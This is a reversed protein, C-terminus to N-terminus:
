SGVVFPVGERASVMVRNNPDDALADSLISASCVGGTQPVCPLDNPCNPVPLRVVLLRATRPDASPMRTDQSDCVARQPAPEPGGVLVRSIAVRNAATGPAAVLQVSVSDGNFFASTYQWQQVTSANLVQFEGDALSTLLLYSRGELAVDDFVVRIWPAGAVRIDRAFVTVPGAAANGPHGVVGSDVRVPHIVLHLPATQGVAAPSVAVSLVLAMESAVRLLPSRFM